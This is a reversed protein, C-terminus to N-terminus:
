MIGGKENFARKNGNTMTNLNLSIGQLLLFVQPLLFLIFIYGVGTILSYKMGEIRQM